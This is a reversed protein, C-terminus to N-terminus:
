PTLDERRVRCVVCYDHEPRRCQDQVMEHGRHGCILASFKREFEEQNNLDDAEDMGLYERHESFLDIMKDIVKKEEDSM